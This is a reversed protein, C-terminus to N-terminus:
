MDVPDFNLALEIDSSQVTDYQESSGDCIKLLLLMPKHLHGVAFHKEIGEPVATNYVDRAKDVGGNWKLVRILALLITYLGIIDTKDYSPLIENIVYECREIAGETDGKQLFWLSSVGICVACKDIAYAKSLLKSHAPMYISKMIEFYKFAEDHAGTRGKFEALYALARAYHFVQYTPQCSTLM